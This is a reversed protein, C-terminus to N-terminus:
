LQRLAESEYYIWNEYEYEDDSKAFANESVEM